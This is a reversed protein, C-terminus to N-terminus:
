NAEAAPTALASDSGLARYLETRNQVSALLV